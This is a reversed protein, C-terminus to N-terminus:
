GSTQFVQYVISEAQNFSCFHKELVLAFGRLNLNRAVFFLKNLITLNM